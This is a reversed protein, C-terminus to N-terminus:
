GGRRRHLPLDVRSQPPERPHARRMEALPAAGNNIEADDFTFGIGRLFMGVFSKGANAVLREPDDHGGRHFLFATIKEVERNDLRNPPCFPGKMVHLVSVVVAALGPWKVRKRACYITGDKACIWRLGSARTDGQAITNTAILGFAGDNRALGFARRFFHAVLDANSNSEVHLGVLWDRYPRGLTTSIRKGGLFPPNGVIADFGSNEREFVEPFEIEWHFPALPPEANRWEALWGRYRGSKGSM